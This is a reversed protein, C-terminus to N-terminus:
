KDSLYTGRFSIPFYQIVSRTLHRNVDFIVLLVEFLNISSWASEVRVKVDKYPYGVKNLM